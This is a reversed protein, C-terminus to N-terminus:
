KVSGSHGFAKVDRAMNTALTQTYTAKLRHAAQKRLDHQLKQRAHQPQPLVVENTNQRAKVVPKAPQTVFAFSINLVASALLVVAARLAPDLFPVPRYNM